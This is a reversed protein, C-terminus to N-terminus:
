VRNKKAEFYVEIENLSLANLVNQKELWGKRAIGIGYSIDQLGEVSHADTNISIYVGCEKAYKCYRWDIDFRHPSANLEIAVNYEAAIDIIKYMDLPMGDRGLLLRGTPHGLINVYPNKMARVVRNTADERSMGLNSHVSAVVFDFTALIDDPYDLSGDNLIDCETGKFIKFRKFQRNLDDVAAHQEKIREPELGRAYVM